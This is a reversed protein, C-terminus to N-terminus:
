KARSLYKRLKVLHKGGRHKIDEIENTLNSKYDFDGRKRKMDTSSYGYGMYWGKGRNYSKPKSM